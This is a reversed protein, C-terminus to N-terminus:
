DGARNPSNAAQMFMAADKMPSSMAHYELLREVPIMGVLQQEDDSVVLVHRATSGLLAQTVDELSSAASTLLPRADCIEWAHFAQPNNLPRRYFNALNRPTLLGFVTRDPNLVPLASVADLEFFLEAEAVTADADVFPFDSLMIDAATCEM